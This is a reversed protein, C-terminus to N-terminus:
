FEFVAQQVIRKEPSIAFIEYLLILLKDYFNRLRRRTVDGIGSFVANCVVVLSNYLYVRGVVFSRRLCGRADAGIWKERGRGKMKTEREREMPCRERTNYLTIRTRGHRLHACASCVRPIFEKDATGIQWTGGVPEGRRKSVTRARKCVSIYIRVRVREKYM